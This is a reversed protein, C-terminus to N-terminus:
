AAACRAAHLAARAEYQMVCTPVVTNRWGVISGGSLTPSILEPIKGPFGEGFIVGTVGAALTANAYLADFRDNYAARAPPTLQRPAVAPLRTTRLSPRRRM